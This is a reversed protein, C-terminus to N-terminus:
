QGALWSSSSSRVDGVGRENSHRLLLQSVLLSGIYTFPKSSLLEKREEDSEFSIPWSVRLSRLDQEIVCMPIYYLVFGHLCCCCFFFTLVSYIINITKDIGDVSIVILVM